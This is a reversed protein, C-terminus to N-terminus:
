TLCGFVLVTYKGKFNETSFKKGAADFVDVDELTEGIRPNEKLHRANYADMFEQRKKQAMMPVTFSLALAACILSPLAKM